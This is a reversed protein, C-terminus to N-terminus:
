LPRRASEDGFAKGKFVSAPAGRSPSTASDDYFALHEILLDLTRPANTAFWTIVDNCDILEQSM